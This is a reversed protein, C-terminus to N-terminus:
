GSETPPAPILGADRAIVAAQVRNTVALKTLVASVHDKVTSPSLHLRRAIQAYWRSRSRGAQRCAGAPRRPM